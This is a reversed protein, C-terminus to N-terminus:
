SCKKHVIQAGYESYLDRTILMDRFATSRSLVSGGIWPLLSKDPPDIVDVKCSTFKKMEKEVRQKMGRFCTSGGSLVINGYLDNGFADDCKKISADLCRHVGGDLTFLLEPTRFCPNGFWIVQGDPLEYQKEMESSTEPKEMEVDFDLAVYCLEEKMQRVISKEATTTFSYGCEALLRCFHESIMTGGINMKGVAHTVCHGEYVPVTHCIDSGCHLVVGTTKGLAYLSLVSDIAICVANVNFQEFMIEVMKERNQKTNLPKETLLVECYEDTNIKLEDKFVADWINYKMDDFGTIIGQTIPRALTFLARARLAEHGVSPMRKPKWAINSSHRWRGVVTPFISQPKQNGSLGVKMTNSGNKIIVCTTPYFSYILQVVDEPTSQSVNYQKETHHVFGFILTYEM